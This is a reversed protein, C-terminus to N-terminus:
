KTRATISSTGALPRPCILVACRPAQQIDVICRVVYLISIDFGLTSLANLEKFGLTMM